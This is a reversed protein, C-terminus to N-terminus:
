HAYCEAPPLYLQDLAELILVADTADTDGDCDMDALQYFAYQETGATDKLVGLADLTEVFGDNNIDGRLGIPSWDWDPMGDIATNDTIQTDTAAGSPTIYLEAPGVFTGAPAGQFIVAQGDPSYKPEEGEGHSIPTIQKTAVTVEFVEYNYDPNHGNSSFVVKTGDPSWDPGGEYGADDQVLATAAGGTAPMVFIDTYGSRSSTFAIKTGDPSWAPDSDLVGPNNTIDTVLKGDAAMTFM